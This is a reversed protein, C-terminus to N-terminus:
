LTTDNSKKYSRYHSLQKEQEFYMEAGHELMYDNAERWKDIGNIKECPYEVCMYCFDVDHAKACDCVKCNQYTCQNLGDVRCGRCKQAAWFRLARLANAVIEHDPHNAIFGEIGDLYRLLEKAHLAVVGNACGTCTYCVCGCPMINRLIEDTTM